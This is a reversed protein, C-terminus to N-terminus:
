FGGMGPLRIGYARNLTTTKSASASAASTATGSITRTVVQDGEKLGDTIETQTDNALGTQVTVTEPLTKSTVGLNATNSDIKVGNLVQVMPGDIGQKIASNPVLLVGAKFDTVIAASVSMGTKIREDQTDFMIKVGYNVVGQSVTGILDVQSVVGAITLDPVADFTLTAKQGVKIKAVDVENLSIEAVKARTLLTAIVTSPSAQDAAQQPLNAIIADFPAKVTYDALMEQADVLKNQAAVLASRSRALSNASIALDTADTGRRLKALAENAENLKEQAAAIDAATAGAKLKDLSTQAKTVSIQASAYATKASEITQVQNILTTLMSSISSRSAQITSQLSNLTSQTFSTNSLTNLLVDYVTQLFPDMLNACKQADTLASEIDATSAGSAQLADAKAKYATVLPKLSTYMADAQMLKSKDMSALYTRNNANASANDNGLVSDADYLAKQLSQGVTKLVPVADDYADRILRPTVGDYSIKINEQQAQLESEALRLDFQNPPEKLKDLDRQAQNVTNLTQLLSVPDPPEKLKDYSLQASELSLKADAVAQAADRVAKVGAKNDIVVLPTGAKVEDGQKVLIKTIVGSVNPKIDLQNQGSVQGSGKVSVVITGKQVAALVYRVEGSATRPRLGYYLGVGAAIIFLAIVSKRRLSKLIKGFM